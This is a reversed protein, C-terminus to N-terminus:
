RRSGGRRNSSRACRARGVAADVLRRKEFAAARRRLAEDGEVHRREGLRGAAHDAGHQEAHERARARQGEPAGGELGRDPAAADADLRAKRGERGPELRGLAAVGASDAPRRLARRASGGGVSSPRSAAAPADSRSIKGSDARSTIRSPTSRVSRSGPRRKRAARDRGAAGRRRPPARRAVPAEEGLDRPLQREAHGILVRDPDGLQLDPRRAELAHAVLHPKRSSWSRSTASNMCGRMSSIASVSGFRQPSHSSSVAQARRAPRASRRRPRTTRM